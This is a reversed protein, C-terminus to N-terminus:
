RQLTLLLTDDRQQLDFRRLVNMGLLVRDDPNLRPLVVAEVRGLRVGGVTLSDLRVAYGYSRGGATNVSRRAGLRLGIRRALTVSLAVTTAGTDLLFRVARGNIAGDALYHDGSRRIVLQEAATQPQGAVPEIAVPQRRGVLKKGTILVRQLRKSEPARVAIYNYGALLRRVAQELPLDGFRASLTDDLPRTVRFEVGTAHDLRRLATDLPVDQWDVTLREAAADFRLGAHAFGPAAALLWFFLWWRVATM